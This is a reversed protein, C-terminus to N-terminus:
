DAQRGTGGHAQVKCRQRTRVSAECRGPRAPLGAEPPPPLHSKNEAGGHAGTHTDRVALRPDTPRLSPPPFLESLVTAFVGEVREGWFTTSFFPQLLGVPPPGPKPPAFSTGHGGALTNTRKLKVSEPQSGPPASPGPPHTPALDLQVNLPNIGHWAEYRGAPIPM